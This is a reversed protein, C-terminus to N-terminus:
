RYIALNKLKRRFTDLTKQGSLLMDLQEMNFDTVRVFAKKLMEVYKSRYFRGRYSTIEVYRKPAEIIYRVSQGPMLGGREQLVKQACNVKYKQRGIRVTLALDEASATDLASIHNKLIHVADGRCSIVEKQLNKVLSPSGRQRLEIGRVKMEGDEGVGFYATPVPMYSANVSPLFTMFRYMRKFEIPLGTESQIAEALRELGKADMGDKKVYLSDVIGHVVEYGADESIRIADHLHQRAAANISEHVEICGIKKSRFAQFGFIVVLLWKLYGVKYSSINDKQRKFHLRRDILFDCVKPVVGRRKTCFVFDTQPVKAKCCGCGLTEPSLNYKSIISPYMSVFDLEGIGRHTGVYPELTLAGRDCRVLNEFSRIREYVGVKYPILYGDRSAQYILLNTIAAGVSHSSVRQIRMRCIRAGEMISYINFDEVMFSTSNLLLRGKLYIPTERYYAQGYSYYSNGEIQPFVDDGVRNLKIGNDLCLKVLERQQGTVFIIDPDLKEYAKKFGDIDLDSDNLTIMKGIKIKAVRFDPIEYDYLTIDDVNKLGDLRALPFLGREFMYMEEVPIDANYFDGKVRKEIGRFERRFEIISNFKVKLVAIDGRVMHQMVCREVRKGSLVSRAADEDSTELYVTPCFSDRLFVDRSGKCWSVVEGRDVFVDVLIMRDAPHGHM